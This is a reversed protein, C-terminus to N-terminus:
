EKGSIIGGSIKQHTVTAIPGTMGSLPAAHPSGASQSALGTNPTGVELVGLGVPDAVEGDDPDTDLPGNDVITYTVLLAHQGNYTTETVTAENITFYAGTSPVYKRVAVQNPKLDTVFLLNIANSADAGSFCFDVLGLPYSYAGDQVAQASEKVASRCTITTGSPLTLVVTKGNEANGFTGTLGDEDQDQSDDLAANHGTYLNGVGAVIMRSGTANFDASRWANSDEDVHGPDEETWTGGNDRSVYMDNGDSLVSMMSGNASIVATKWNIGGWYELSVDDWDAGGNGSVYVKGNTSSHTGDVSVVMKDGSSSMAAQLEFVIGDDAPAIDQWTSGGNSSLRVLPGMTGRNEGGILVKSGDHSVSLSKWNSVDDIFSTTWEDDGHSIMYAYETEEGSLAVIKSGDGSLAVKTWDDPGLPSINDWSQGADKSVFINGEHENFVDLDVSMNSVAVMTQGDSSVDVSTWYHRMGDDVAEDINQWTAGYDNSVFLPNAASLGEGGNTVSALLHKGSASSAVSSYEGNVLDNDVHKRWEYQNSAAYVKFPITPQTLALATVATVGVTLFRRSRGHATTTKGRM